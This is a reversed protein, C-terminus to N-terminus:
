VLQSEEEEGIGGWEGGWRPKDKRFVMFANTKYSQYLPLSFYFFFDRGRDKFGTPKRHSPCSDDDTALQSHSSHKNEREQDIKKESEEWGLGQKENRWSGDPGLCFCM